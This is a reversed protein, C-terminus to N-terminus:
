LGNLQFFKDFFKSIKSYFEDLKAVEYNHDIFPKLEFYLEPTLNNVIELLEKENNFNIIGRPDYGFENINPCGWYIPLTKSLFNDGIKNYWNNQKVNEIVVNFMSNKYLIRKGYGVLDEGKPIHSLDKTYADYGPRTDTSTDYDELIYYWDNSVNIQDKLSYVQHRLKHGEVLDKTGCLFTTNFTKEKKNTSEIFDLDLTRGNYTFEIANECNKLVNEGWTLIGTFLFSNKIAFDHFGFFENPEHLFLFNYPNINLQEENEPFKDYWFTIPKDKYRNNLYILFHDNELSRFNSFIKM